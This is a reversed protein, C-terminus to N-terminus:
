VELECYLLCHDSIEELFKDLQVDNGIYKRWGDLKIDFEGDEDFNSQQTFTLHDSAVIHDLDSIGYTHSFYTGAPKTLRRLFPKLKKHRKSGSSRNAHFDLYKLEDLTTVINDAVYPRPYKMGMTNLDGLMIFNSKIDYTYDIKRKLNYAHRFMETRNGFDVATTGSDTHLFLFNYQQDNHPHNFTLFAGPRLSKNGSKFEDKQTIMISDFKNKCAILIEQLQQGKTIFITYKPFHTKMFEYISAAEVEYIGFVDPNYDKIIKAIQEQKNAKFHEVNWSLIKLNPM